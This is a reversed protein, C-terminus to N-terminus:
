YFKTLRYISGNNKSANSAHSLYPSVKSEDLAISFWTHPLKSRINVIDYNSISTANRSFDLVQLDKCSEVLTFISEFSELIM